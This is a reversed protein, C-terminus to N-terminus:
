VAPARAARSPSPALSCRHIAHDGAGVARRGACIGAVRGARASRHLVASGGHALRLLDDAVSDRRRRSRALAREGDARRRGHGVGVHRRRSRRPETRRGGGDHTGGTVHVHADFLGPIAFRGAGDIMSQSTPESGAPAISAITGDRVVLSVHARPAADTGDILTVDKVVLTGGAPAGRQLAGAPAEILALLAIASIGLSIRRVTM